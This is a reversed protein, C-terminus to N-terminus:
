DIVMDASKRSAIVYILVGFMAKEIIDAVKDGVQMATTAAGGTVSIMPFIFVFPYFGWSLVNLWRACNVLGRMSVPQDQISNKLGVFLEYLIILFPIM